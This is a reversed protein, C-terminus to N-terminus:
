SRVRSSLAIVTPQAIVVEAGEDSELARAGGIANIWDGTALGTIRPQRRYPATPPLRRREPGPGM